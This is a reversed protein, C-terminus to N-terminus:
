GKHKHESHVKGGGVGKESSNLLRMRAFFGKGGGGRERGIM